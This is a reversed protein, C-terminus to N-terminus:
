RGGVAIHPEVPDEEPPPAAQYCQCGYTGYIYVPVPAPGWQVTSWNVQALGFGAAGCAILVVLWVAWFNRRTM